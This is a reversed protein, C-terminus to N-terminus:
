CEANLRECRKLIFRSDQNKPNNDQPNEARLDSPAKANVCSALAIGGFAELSVASHQSSLEVEQMGRLPMGTKPFGM